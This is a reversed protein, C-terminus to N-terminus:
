YAAAAVRTRAGSPRYELVDNIHYSNFKKRTSKVKIFTVRTNLLESMPTYVQDLYQTFLLLTGLTLYKEFLFYGGIYYILAKNVIFYSNSM